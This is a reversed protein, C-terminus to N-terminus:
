AEFNDRERDKLQEYIDQARKDEKNKMALRSELVKLKSKYGNIIDVIDQPLVDLTKSPWNVSYHYLKDELEDCDLKM